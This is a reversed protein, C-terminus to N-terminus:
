NNPSGTNSSSELQQVKLQEGLTVMYEPWLGGTGPSVLRRM